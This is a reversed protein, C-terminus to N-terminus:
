SYRESPADQYPNRQFWEIEGFRGDPGTKFPIFAGLEYGFQAIYARLKDRDFDAHQGHSTKKMEIVLLNTGLGREHVIIDPFVTKADTDTWAIPQDPPELMKTDALDRNYECDVAWNPFAAQLYLALRHSVSRENVDFELLYHDHRTFEEIARKVSAQMQDVSPLRNM